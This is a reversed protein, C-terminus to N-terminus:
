GSPVNGYSRCMRTGSEYHGHRTNCVRWGSLSTGQNSPPCRPEPQGCLCHRSSPSTSVQDNNNNNNQQKRAISNHKFSNKHSCHYVFLDTIVQHRKKNEASCIRTTFHWLCGWQPPALSAMQLLSQGECRSQPDPYRKPNEDDAKTDIVEISNTSKPAKRSECFSSRPDPWIM